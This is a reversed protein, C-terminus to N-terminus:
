FRYSLWSSSMKVHSMQEFNCKLGKECACKVYKVSILSIKLDEGRRTKKLVVLTLVVNVNMRFVFLSLQAADFVSTVGTEKIDVVCPCVCASM